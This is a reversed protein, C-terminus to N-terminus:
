TASVPVALDLSAPNGREDSVRVTYTLTASRGGDERPYHVGVSPVVLSGGGPVRNSGAIATVAAADFEGSAIVANTGADRLTMAISAVTGGVGATERITLVTVAERDTSASGCAHCRTGAIPNPSATLTFSAQTPGGTPGSASSGGCGFTLAMGFFLATNLSSLRM